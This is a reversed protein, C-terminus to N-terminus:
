ASRKRERIKSQPSAFDSCIGRNGIACNGISYVNWSKYRRRDLRWGSPSLDGVPLVLFILSACLAFFALVGFFLRVFKGVNYNKFDPSRLAARVAVKRV